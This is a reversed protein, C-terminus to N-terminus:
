GVVSESWKFKRQAEPCTEPHAQPSPAQPCAVPTITLQPPPIQRDELSAECKGRILSTPQPLLLILKHKHKLYCIM